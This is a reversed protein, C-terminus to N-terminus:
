FNLLIDDCSQHWTRFELSLFTEYAPVLFAHQNMDCTNECSKTAYNLITTTVVHLIYKIYQYRSMWTSTESIPWKKLLTGEFSLDSLPILCSEPKDSHHTTNVVVYLLIYLTQAVNINTIMWYLTIENFGIGNKTFTSVTEVGSAKALECSLSIKLSLSVCKM